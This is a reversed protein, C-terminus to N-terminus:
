NILAGGDVVIQSGTMYSSMESALFLVVKGIEDPDGLRHMPIKSLFNEINGSDQGGRQMAEVGPTLIGGPAVANVWIKHQALELAV